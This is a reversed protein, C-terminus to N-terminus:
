QGVEDVLEYRGFGHRDAFVFRRNLSAYHWVQLPPSEASAPIDEV